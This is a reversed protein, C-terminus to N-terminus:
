FWYKRSYPSITQETNTERKATLWYSQPSLSPWSSSSLLLLLLFSLLIIMFNAETITCISRHMGHLRIPSHGQQELRESNLCKTSTFPLTWAGAEKGGPCSGTECMSYSVPQSRCGTQCVELRLFRERSGLISPYNISQGAGNLLSTM